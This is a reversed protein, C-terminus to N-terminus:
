DDIRKFNQKSDFELELGNSINVSYGFREREIKTIFTKPFKQKVYNSIKKPVTTFAVGTQKNEIEKWNGSRDFEVKTGNQLYAKYETTIGAISKSQAYSVANKGFNKSLFNQTNAPLQTTTINKDQGYATEGIAFLSLALSIKLLSKM